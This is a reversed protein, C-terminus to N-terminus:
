FLAPMNSTNFIFNTMALAFLKREYSNKLERWEEFSVRFFEEIFGSQTLFGLTINVDLIMTSYFVGYLVRNFTKSMPPNKLRSYVNTLIDGVAQKILNGDLNQVAIHLLLAGEANNGLIVPKDKRFMSLTAMDFIHKLNEHSEEFFDKGYIIYANIAQLLNGFIGKYKIQFKHLFPFIKRLNPSVVKSKKM